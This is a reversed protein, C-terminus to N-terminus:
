QPTQRSRVTSVSAHFYNRRLQTVASGSQAGSSALAMGRSTRNLGGPWRLPLLHRLLSEVAEM